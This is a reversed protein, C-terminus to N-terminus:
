KKEELKYLRFTFEMNEKLLMEVKEELKDFKKDMHEIKYNKHKYKEKVCSIGYFLLPGFILVYIIPTM